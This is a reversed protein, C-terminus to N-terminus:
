LLRRRNKMLQDISAFVDREIYTVLCDNLLEDRMRNRLLSKIINMASFVREVTATAVPLILLLKVLLYVLPFVIHKRTAVMKEALDGIGSVKSFKKDICMNFVFNELQSKLEILAVPSFKCPYFKALQIFKGADFASFSDKPDLCAMYLLLNINVEDFRNNLEQFQMDIVSYFLEVNYHYLNIMEESRHRSRGRAVYVDEMDLVVIDYKGCFELLEPLLSDWGDVNQSKLWIMANVIDQDRRQLVQSLEYTIGLIKKMLNLVFVFEFRNMIDLLDIAEVRQPDDSGNEGIYKLVDIISSFLHMLNILTGYHFSWRTDGSRKLAMEQNLGQVKEKQKEQFIDRRKYSGGIVNVLCTVNNFFSSISSHKKAVVVLTLQLKHAFCHIYYASSNEKLILSKFGNFEGRMNSTGYLRSQKSQKLFSVEIYQTQNMLDECALQCKNHDSSHDTVHERLRKKKRWNTFDESVFADHGRESRGTAFLYCYLCYAADKEISYELWSGFEDFWSAIFRRKELEM